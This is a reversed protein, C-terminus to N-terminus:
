PTGGCEELAWAILVIVVLGLLKLGIRTLWSAGSSDLGFLGKM